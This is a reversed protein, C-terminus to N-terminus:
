TTEPDVRPPRNPLSKRRPRGDPVHLGRSEFWHRIAATVTDRCCGLREAIEQMLLNQDWLTKAAESLKEADSQRDLRARLKRGDPAPQGRQKHWWALAKAIWSRPCKLEAAIQKCERGADFFQKVRDAIAVWPPDNRFSIEIEEVKV